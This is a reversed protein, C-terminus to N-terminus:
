WVLVEACKESQREFEELIAKGRVAHQELTEPDDDPHWRDRAPQPGVFSARYALDMRAKLAAIATKSEILQRCNDDWHYLLGDLLFYGERFVGSSYMGLETIRQGCPPYQIALCEKGDLLTKKDLTGIHLVHKEFHDSKGEERAMMVSDTESVSKIKVGNSQAKGTFNGFTTVNFVHDALPAPKFRMSTNFDGVLKGESFTGYKAKRELAEFCRFYDICNPGSLKKRKFKGKQVHWDDGGLNEEYAGDGWDLEPDHANFTGTYNKDRSGEVAPDLEEIVLTGSFENATIDLFRIDAGLMRHITPWGIERRYCVLSRAHGKEISAKRETTSLALHPPLTNNDALLCRFNAIKHNLPYKDEQGDYPETVCPFTCEKSVTDQTEVVAKSDQWEWFTSYMWGERWCPRYSGYECSLMTIDITIEEGDATKFKLQTAFYSMVIRRLDAIMIYKDLVNATAALLTLLEDKEEEEQDKKVNGDDQKLRKAPPEENNPAVPGEFDLPLPQTM